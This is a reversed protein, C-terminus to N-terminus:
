CRSTHSRSHPVVIHIHSEPYPRAQLEEASGVFDVLGLLRAHKAGLMHTSLRQNTVFSQLRPYRRVTLGPLSSPGAPLGFTSDSHALVTTANLAFLMDDDKTDGHCVAVVSCVVRKLIQLIRAAAHERSPKETAGDHRLQSLCMDPIRGQLVLLGDVPLWAAHTLRDCIKNLDDVENLHIWLLADAPTGSSLVTPLEQWALSVESAFLSASDLTRPQQFGSRQLNASHALHEKVLWAEDLVVRNQYIVSGIPHTAMASACTLAHSKTKEVSFCVDDLVGCALADQTNLIENCFYMSRAVVSGLILFPTTSYGGGPSVGRPLNGHQFTTHADAVRYDCNFCTSM